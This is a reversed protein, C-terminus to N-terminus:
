AARPPGTPKATSGSPVTRRTGTVADTL